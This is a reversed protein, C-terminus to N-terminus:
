LIIKKKKKTAVCYLTHSAPDMHSAPDKNGMWPDFGHGRCYVHRTKVM